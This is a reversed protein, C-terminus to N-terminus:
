VLQLRAKINFYSKYTLCSSITPIAVIISLLNTQNSYTNLPHPEGFPFVFRDAALLPSKKISEGLFRLLRSILLSAARVICGVSAPALKSLYLVDYGTFM